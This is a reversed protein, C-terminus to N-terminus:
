SIVEFVKVPEAKGKLKMPDKEIIKYKDKLRNKTAESIYVSANRSQSELREATNVADSIATFDMRQDTGINGVVAPGSNIGIGIDLEVGVEKMVEKKFKKLFHDRIEIATRVANDAHEEDDIPAGFITMICDGIFKDLTGKYKFIYESAFSFFRNLLGVVETPSLKESLPTFNRIDIFMISIIKESGGLTLEPMKSVADAVSSSLYRKLNNKIKEEVQIKQFMQSNDISIGVYSSFIKILDKENETFPLVKMERDIYIAGIFEMSKNLLPSLIASSINSVLASQTFEKDTLDARNIIVPERSDEIKKIMSRSMFQEPNRINKHFIIKYEKNEYNKLMIYGREGEIVEVALNLIMKILLSFDFISNIMMGVRYMIEYNKLKKQYDLQKFKIKNLLDKLQDINADKSDDYSSIMLELQGLTDFEMETVAKIRRKDLKETDDMFHFVTNGIKIEDGNKLEVKDIKAGNVQTGYKSGKDMIFYKGVDKFIQCHYRSAFMDKLIIDNDEKRGLTILDKDIKCENLNGEM